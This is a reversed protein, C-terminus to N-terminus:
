STSLHDCHTPNSTTLSGQINEKNELTMDLNEFSEFHGIGEKM